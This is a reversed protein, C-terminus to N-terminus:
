GSGPSRGGVDGRLRMVFQSEGQAEIGFPDTVDTAWGTAAHLVAATRAAHSLGSRRTGPRGSCTM